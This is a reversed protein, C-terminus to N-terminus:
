MNRRYQGGVEYLANTIQGLSAVKVTDMLEAFINGGTVAVQQLKRLAEEAADSHQSQFARLNAIQTEKEERTARAIEMNDIDEESPPNPNLYTNVGIIPLEGSHKKMEYLMSEEQIKGRQYQTEMSGLVGGRDNLRDFEQLVSEEVLDTLEEIIFSGQLPNENKSLGHEKTIIMQIAMARRVSEETPTTIAEDYANTHLSNCNDQLAMLAQLTTRIDNFDIEQAHLSRGSTQVHYKLKQSRENAGYKERMAVAWIRRAVRGIVTYEPDLGNSFFFSLNPAFDDINMGRSLYYEVYTFGNALTFALQSIPNAGAEAIHYGSISVSYYNRVKQDIFYQQIDGMMRLAFETSFICTNQGQDEKLIDAQVTGRVVQLTANRVETFEEITLVRGLEEEKRKVQQDVATNMFMALIIPAPGNITMSVSTSPACLDFGDYLKKMDELTCISVGSEGVKGYIDPREDPDEGYLTVSDFATSLRKADDDKSLYHFRRNTREPTGEGAFQRKPDEGERKFPFVGATYPFSGPVNEKYVWRLIEGYDKFKPLSVKPIKLGSLSTTTLLTRLEKDRIKTIFEDGAYSEKLTGWNNLIRKSEASLEERVGEALSELSAALVNDSSKENVAEIAGELQFLRRALDVQQASKKHYDRITGAIERLYHTRDTPIIVNQKQTKVFDAYSTEWDLGCKENLKSVLAAFLSNTGKDNFQSAITGYVPMTDLDKDFLLHSRQYQKQVQSLADESGKREFKNIVILDAFDIMDIKELQTPAGFESTMVYMSVDSVETIEADGQGIGSTEVIILDFGATKVVDLVDKIAGSLESRSGRTALSRMFVRKNFIANMRIRDGLLAGGTKQKTPDISLIAVKKDPLERLFRRILEDTLSSKGAGGTGTIGLVPTHKSLERAKQILTIADRNEKNYMEEAYTILNALVEPNDTGVKELNAMEDEVETLFDCEEVMRNIMGQLGMKRGDEPSFIWAIGYDHLEKIEKPLIVGGGGGYIRIHPAGKEQLLDYMYKFYEVHGGQYSSIAIGQVDEQIAANVVEEVSRNHGLHIVEAGTSQLIRRMINISADHGDFLSSATVFRVHHKPKYIETTVM